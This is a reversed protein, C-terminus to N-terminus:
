FGPKRVPSRPSTPGWAIQSRARHAHHGDRAANPARKADLRGGLGVEVVALDVKTEAFIAFAAVTATEFFTLEPFRDLVTHLWHVLRDESVPEGGIQIREAFRLLHPSTYLGVGHGAARAMADVMAAVSGKGNTGAIHVSAFRREPHGLAACAARVRELGLLAGRPALEYLREFVARKSPIV